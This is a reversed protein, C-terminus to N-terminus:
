GNEFILRAESLAVSDAPSPEFTHADGGPGVLTRVTVRDGGVNQVLDGLISFTAVAALKQATATTAEPTPAASNAGACANLLALLSLLLSAAILPRHKPM